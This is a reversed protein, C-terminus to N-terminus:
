AVSRARRWYAYAPLGLAVLGLGLLSEAPREVLTNGLLALSALVFLAPVWPYGWTRYPRPLDPRTARLVFSAAGTAAHFLVSAFVVYTYLQAYTGSLTLLVARLSQAWLSVGPTHHRPHVRAMARFFLRDEAMPLYIRASYLLTSALCGFTSVVVAASVWRSALGGFLAAAASERPSRRRGSRAHCASGGPIM